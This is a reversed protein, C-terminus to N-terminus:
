AGFVLGSTDRIHSEWCWVRNYVHMLIFMNYRKVIKCDWKVERMKEPNKGKEMEREKGVKNLMMCFLQFNM